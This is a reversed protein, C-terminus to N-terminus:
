AFSTNEWPAIMNIQEKVIFLLFIIAVLTIYMEAVTSLCTWSTVFKTLIVAGM